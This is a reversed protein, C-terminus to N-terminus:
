EVPVLAFTVKQPYMENFDEQSLQGSWVAGVVADEDVEPKMVTCQDLLGREELLEIARGYDLSTTVRRQRKFATYKGVEQPLELWMHGKDDEEGSETIRRLIQDRLVNMQKKIEDASDRLHLYARADMEFEDLTIQRNSDATRAM